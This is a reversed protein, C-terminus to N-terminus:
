NVSRLPTPANVMPTQSPAPGDVRRRDGNHTRVDEIIHELNLTAFELRAKGDTDLATHDISHLTNAIGDLADDLDVWYHTGTARTRVQPMRSM